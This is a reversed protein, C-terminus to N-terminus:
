RRAEGARRGARHRVVHRGHRTRAGGSACIGALTGLDTGGSDRQGRGSQREGLSRFYKHRRSDVAAVSRRHARSGQLHCPTRKFERDGSRFSLRLEDLDSSGPNRRNPAATSCASTRAISSRVSSLIDTPTDSDRQITSQRRGLAQLRARGAQEHLVLHPVRLWSPEAFDGPQRACSVVSRACGATSRM